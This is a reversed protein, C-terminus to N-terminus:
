LLGGHDMVGLLCYVLWAEQHKDMQYRNIWDIISEMHGGLRIKEATGSLVEMDDEAANELFELMDSESGYIGYREAPEKLYRFEPPLNEWNPKRPEEIYRVKQNAFPWVNNRGLHSFLNLLSGM